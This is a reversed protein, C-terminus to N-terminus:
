HISKCNLFIFHFSFSNNMNAGLHPLKKSCLLNSKGLSLIKSAIRGAIHLLTTTDQMSASRFHQLSSLPQEPRSTGYRSICYEKGTHVVLHKTGRASFWCNKPLSVPMLLSSKTFNRIFIQHGRVTATIKSASKHYNGTKSLEGRTPCQIRFYCERYGQWVISKFYRPIHTEPWLIVAGRAGTSILPPLFDSTDASCASDHLPLSMWLM